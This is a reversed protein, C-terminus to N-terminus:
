AARRRPVAGGGGCTRCRSGDYMGEGSGNCAGCMVTPDIYDGARSGDLTEADPDIDAEDASDLAYCEVYSIWDEPIGLQALRARVQETGHKASDGAILGPELIIEITYLNM